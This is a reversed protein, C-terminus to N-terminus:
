FKLTLETFWKRGPARYYAFYAKDFINDVSFSVTAFKTLKYSLKLDTVFYPDYSTYVDGVTDTNEDNQYRKSVYRAVLSGSFSDKTLEVGLNFMRQPVDTLWKGETEPKTENKKVNADENYTLNAFLRLGMDLRQELEVEIGRIEARATNIKDKYTSTVTRSYIFDEIYNEFYTAKLKCGKWLGQEIGLDWSTTKEPNLEPNGAYTIGRSTTWTKYLEYITPPRFAQGLSTRLITKLFPEYVLAVKPSFSSASHSAYDKPYGTTGVQNAYGDYTEWWDERFGLYTTLNDLIEIEDQIFLAFTRDKGRAEYSLTTQSGKDKWSTLNHEKSDAWNYRFSSGFTFIHRSFLPQTFQLESNYSESPTQTVKGLDGFRTADSGPTINWRMFDVLGLSLKAKLTSIETEYSLNYMNQSDKGDGLLFTSERVINPSTGYSWVPNGAANKLYTHPENYSYGCSNRMFSFKLKTSESFDYGTKVTINEDWYEENGKDGILYRTNGQNNTTYSWGTIATTPTTSQVNLDTRYGDTSKYGYSLFLTLPMDKFRDGYSIYSKWLADSGYGGKLVFERKRPTKTIINVVGGMAHGGYLSSSPGRVVEIREIDELALGEFRVSGTYANNLTLGDMLILTREQGPIGRLTVTAMADMLLGKGRENLIGTVTNLAQDVVQVNRIETDKNTVVSVSGPTKTAEMETRTATVVIRELEIDEARIIKIGIVLLLMTAILTKFVPQIMRIM